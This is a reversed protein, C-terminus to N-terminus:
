VGTEVLPLPEWVKKPSSLTRRVSEGCAGIGYCIRDRQLISAVGLSAGINLKLQVLESQEGIASSYDPCSSM